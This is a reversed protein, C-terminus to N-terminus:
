EHKNLKDKISNIVTINNEYKLAKKWEYVAEKTRGLKLYCDGLHDMVESSRPLIMISKELYFVSSMYNERKFEVWGLTDLFFGNNPDLSLAKKIHNLALDLEEDRLALSYAFYNLTYTEEPDTKLIKILLEKAKHWDGMKDLSSAYLFLLRNNEGHNEIIKKYIQIAEYFNSKSKFYDAMQLMIFKNNPWKDKIKFLHKKHEANLKSSKLISLKKLNSPLYFFSESSISNLKKLAIEKSKQDYYIEALSYKAIDMNPYLYLALELLIKLHSYSYEQLNNVKVNNYIKSALIINLDPVESFINKTKSINKILLKKDFQNPLNKQIITKFKDIDNVRFYYGALLLLDNNNLNKLNINEDVIKKLKKSAYFNELILLKYISIDKSIYDFNLDKKEKLHLLWYNILPVVDHLNLFKKIKKAVLLSQELEYNKLTLAFKPLEYVPGNKNNINLSNSINYAQKFNGSILNSIFKLKLLELDKINSNLTKAATYADGKSISYNASLYLANISPSKKNTVEIDSFKSINSNMTCGYFSITLFIIIFKIM